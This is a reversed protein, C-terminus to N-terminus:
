RIRVQYDDDELIVDIADRMSPVTEVIRDVDPDRVDAMGASSFLM